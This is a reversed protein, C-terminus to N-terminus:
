NNISSLMSAAQSDLLWTLAGAEPKILQAPLNEPQLPGELVAKVAAAKKVGTVLFIVQAAGNIAAPTLTIRYSALKEVWNAVVWKDTVALASTGPFLSATHGDEGLGLLVLDFPPAEVDLYFDRLEKEYGTASSIADAEIEIRHINSAPIDVKSILTESVLKYNSEPHDASVCREDGFFLHVTTWDIESRFQDGALLEYMRRPTNGGALVVHFLDHEAVADNALEVFRVAAVRAVDEATEFVQVTTSSPM